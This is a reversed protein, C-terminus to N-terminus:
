VGRFLLLLTGLASLSPYLDWRPRDVPGFFQPALAFCLVGMARLVWRAMVVDRPYQM